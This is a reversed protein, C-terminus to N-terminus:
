RGDTVLVADSAHNGRSLALMKGDVSWAFHSIEGDTFHTVQSLTGTERDIGWINAVDKTIAVFQAAKSDPSWALHDQLAIRPIDVIRIPTGGNAPFFALQTSVRPGTRFFCALTKGDPSVVGNRSRDTLATPVGGSISVRWIRFNASFTVSQSDPEVAPQGIGEPVDTLRTPNEGDATVRWLQPTGTERESRYLVYKGDPSASPDLNAGGGTVFPRADSGDANMTWLDGGTNSNVSYILRGTQTWALGGSGGVAMENRTIASARQADGGPAVWVDAKTNLQVTVFAAGDTTTSVGLYDNLDSTVQRPEGGSAPVLWVQHGFYASASEAVAALVASSDALWAVRRVGYWRRTSLERLTGSEADIAAIVAGNSHALPTAITRGDPSWAPGPREFPQIPFDDPLKVTVLRREASGDANAVMMSSAREPPSRRVFAMRTGDPSFTVNTDV